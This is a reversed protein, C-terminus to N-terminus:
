IDRRLFLEMTRVFIFGFVCLAWTLAVTCPGANPLFPMGAVNLWLGIVAVTSVAHVVIVRPPVRGPEVARRRRFQILLLATFVSAAASSSLPWGVADPVHLLHLLAPLM